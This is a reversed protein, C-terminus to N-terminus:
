KNRLPFNKIFNNSDIELFNKIEEKKKWIDDFELTMVNHKNKFNVIQKKICREFFYKELKGKLLYCLPCGLKVVQTQFIKRRKLSNYIKEYDGYIYIIKINKNEISPFKNLHTYRDQDNENNLKKYLKLYQILTTTAVGGTSILIFDLLINNSITKPRSYKNVVSIFFYKIFRLPFRIFKAIYSFINKKM